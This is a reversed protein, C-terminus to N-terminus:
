RTVDFNVVSDQALLLDTLLLNTIGSKWCSVLSWCECFLCQSLALLTSKITVKMYLKEVVTEILPRTSNHPEQVLILKIQNYNVTTSM